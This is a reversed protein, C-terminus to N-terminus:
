IVQATEEQSNQQYGLTNIETTFNTLNISGSETEESESNKANREFDSKDSINSYMDKVKNISDEASIILESIDDDLGEISEASDRVISVFHQLISHTEQKEEYKCLLFDALGLIKNIDQLEDFSLKDLRSDDPINSKSLKQEIKGSLQRVKELDLSFDRKTNLIKLCNM